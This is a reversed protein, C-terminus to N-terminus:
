NIAKTNLLDALANNEKKEKETANQNSFIFIRSETPELSRQEKPLQSNNILINKITKNGINTIKIMNKNDTSEIQLNGIILQAFANNALLIFAILIYKKM